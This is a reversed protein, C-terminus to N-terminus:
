VYIENFVMSSTKQQSIGECRDMKKSTSNFDWCEQTLRLHQRGCNVQGLRAQTHPSTPLYLSPVRDLVYRVYCTYIIYYLIIYHLTIYYLIIDYIYLIYLYLYIAVVM